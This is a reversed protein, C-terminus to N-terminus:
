SSARRPQGMTIPVDRFPKRPAAKARGPSGGRGGLSRNSPVAAVTVADIRPPACMTRTWSTASIAQTARTASAIRAEVQIMLVFNYSAEKSALTQKGITLFGGGRFLRAVVILM